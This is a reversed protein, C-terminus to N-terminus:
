TQVRSNENPGQSSISCYDYFRHFLGFSEKQKTQGKKGRFVTLEETESLKEMGQVSESAALTHGNGFADSYVDGRLRWEAYFEMKIKDKGHSHDKSKRPKRYRGSLIDCFAPDGRLSGLKQPFFRSNQYLTVM